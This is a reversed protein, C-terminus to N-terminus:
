VRTYVVDYYRVDVPRGRSMQWMKLAVPDTQSPVLYTATRQRCPIQRISGLGIGTAINNDDIGNGVDYISITEIEKVLKPTSAGARSSAPSVIQRVVESCAFKTPSITEAKRAITLIDVSILDGTGSPPALLCSFRNPTAVSVDVVSYSGMAAKAIEKANFERDAAIYSGYNSKVDNTSSSSSSSSPVVGEVGRVGVGIGAGGGIGGSAVFRARYSLSEGKVVEREVTADYAAKGGSFLEYGCPAYIDTTKSIATFTGLFYPPYRIDTDEM